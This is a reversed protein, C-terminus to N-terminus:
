KTLLAGLQRVNRGKEISMVANVIKQQLSRDLIDQTRSIYKAEVDASSIPNAPTSKSDLVTAEITQGNQMHFVARTSVRKPYMSDFTPDVVPVVKDAISLVESDHMMGESFSRPDSADATVAVAVTYPLSYQAAMTSTPRRELHGDVMNQPGVTEIKAIKGADFNPQDRCETIAEILSHFMRCCPYLKISISDIEFEKGLGETMRTLDPSGAFVTAFGYRGDIANNPGTFGRSALQAALVGRESPLGAHMRKIMTGSPDEAFKMVGSSMSAAIGFARELKETDLGLLRGAATTAGFVGFQATPHFGQKIIRDGTPSGIRGMADYGSVIATLFAEGSADRAEAVAFASSIIVAGPHSLSEDHTDDLEIGHAASGNALAANRMSSRKGGIITSVADSGEDLVLERLIRSWELTSGMYTVGIYDLILEKARQRTKEPIAGYDLKSVFQILEGTKTTKNSQM